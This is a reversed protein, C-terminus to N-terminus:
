VFGRFLFGLAQKLWLFKEIKKVKDMNIKESKLLTENFVQQIEMNIKHSSSIVNLEDNHFFSLRDFNMSGFTIFNDIILIKAHNINPKFLYVDIDNRLLTPLYSYFAWRATIHDTKYPFIIKVDVGRRKAKILRRLIITNPSFYPSIIYIREESKKIRRKLYDYIKRSYPENAILKVHSEIFDTTELDDEFDKLSWKKLFARKFVDISETFKYQFDYWESVHDSFVVGGIYAIKDDVVMLKRHNRKLTPTLINTFRPTRFTIFKYEVGAKRLRKRWGSFYLNISGYLDIIIKVQVGEKAKKEFVSLFRHGISNEEFDKLIFQEFYIYKKANSCDEYMADWAEKVKLYYNM